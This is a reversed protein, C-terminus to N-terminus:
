AAQSRAARRGARFARFASHGLPSARKSCPRSAICPQENRVTTARRQVNQLAKAIVQASRVVIAGRRCPICSQQAGGACFAPMTSTEAWKARKNCPIYREVGSLSGKQEFHLPNATRVLFDQESQLAKARNQELHVTTVPKAQLEGASHTKLLRRPTQLAIGM